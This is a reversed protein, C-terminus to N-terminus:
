EEFFIKMLSPIEKNNVIIRPSITKSSYVGFMECYDKVLKEYEERAAAIKNKMDVRLAEREARKAEAVRAAEEYEKEDALCEEVTEYVKNTVESFIRM